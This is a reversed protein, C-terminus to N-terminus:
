LLADICARTIVSFTRPSSHKCSTLSLPINQHASGIGHGQPFHLELERFLVSGLGALVADGTLGRKTACAGNINERGHTPSDRTSFDNTTM